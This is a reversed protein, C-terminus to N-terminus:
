RRPVTSQIGWSRGIAINWISLFFTTSNRKYFWCFFSEGGRRRKVTRMTRLFFLDVKNLLWARHTCTRATFDAFNPTFFIWWKTSRSSSILNSFTYRLAKESITIVICLRYTTYVIYSRFMENNENWWAAINTYSLKTYIKTLTCLQVHTHPVSASRCDVASRCFKYVILHM